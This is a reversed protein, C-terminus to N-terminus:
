LLGKLLTKQYGLLKREPLETLRQVMQLCEQWSQSSIARLKIIPTGAISRTTQELLRKSTPGKYTLGSHLRRLLKVYPEM